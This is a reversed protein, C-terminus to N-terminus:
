DGDTIREVALVLRYFLYIVFLSVGIQLAALWVTVLTNVRGLLIGFGGSLGLAVLVAGVLWGPVAEWLRAIDDRVEQTM